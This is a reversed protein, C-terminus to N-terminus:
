SRLSPLLLELRYDNNRIIIFHVVSGITSGVYVTERIAAQVAGAVKLGVALKFVM